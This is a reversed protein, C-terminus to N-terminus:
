KKTPELSLDWFNCAQELAILANARETLATIQSLHTDTDDKQAQLLDLLSTAGLKYSTLKSQLVKEALAISVPGYQALQRKANQYRAYNSRIDLEAKLRTSDLTKQAQLAAYQAQEYEGRYSNFIPLPVSVTLNFSNYSPSPNLKNHIATNEQYGLGVTPDPIRNAGALKISSQAAAYAYQAAKVDPRQDQYLTLLTNLPFDRNAFELNGAPQRVASRSKGILQLLAFLDTSQTSIAAALDGKAQSANLRAQNTDTEGLDGESLRKVNAQALSELSRYARQKEAVIMRDGLATVFATAASGRLQRFFDDVTASTSLLNKQAVSVRFKRKGGLEIEESLGENYTVSQDRSPINSNYGFQAIPNPSVNAAVVQAKAISINYRQAALDLNSTAVETLFQALTLPALPHIPQSDANISVGCLVLAIMCSRVICSARAFLPGTMCIRQIANQTPLQKVLQFLSQM